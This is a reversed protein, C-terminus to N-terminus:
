LGAFQQARVGQVVLGWRLDITSLPSPIRNERTTRVYTPIGLNLVETGWSGLSRTATPGWQPVTYLPEWLRISGKAPEKPVWTEEPRIGKTPAAGGMPRDRFGLVGLVGVGDAALCFGSAHLSLKESELRAHGHEPTQSLGEKAGLGKSPHEQLNHARLLEEVLKAAVFTWQFFVLLKRTGM